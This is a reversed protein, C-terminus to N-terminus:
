LHLRVALLGGTVGFGVIATTVVVLVRARFSPAVMVLSPLSIPPLTLLLAGAPRVGIGLALM